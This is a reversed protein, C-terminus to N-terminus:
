AAEQQHSVLVPCPARHVVRQAVSGLVARAIGTRAHSALAICATAAEDRAFRVIAAAPNDPRLLAYSAPVGRNAFNKALSELAGIEPEEAPSPVPAPVLALIPDLVRVVTVDAHLKLAVGAAPGVVGRSGASGDVCVVVHAPDHLWTGLRNEPGVLLLPVVAARVVADAVSGLVVTGFGSRGHTAMMVASDPSELALRAITAGPDSGAVVETEVTPTRGDSGETQLLSSVRAELYPRAWSDGPDESVTLLVLNAGSRAAFALAPEIAHEALPSGDLPVIITRM